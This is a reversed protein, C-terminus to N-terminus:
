ILNIKYNNSGNGEELEEEADVIHEDDVDMDDGGNMGLQQVIPTEETAFQQHSKKLTPKRKNVVITEVSRNKNVASNISDVISEITSKQQDQREEKINRILSITKNLNNLKQNNLDSSPLVSTMSGGNSSSSSSSSSASSSTTTATVCSM